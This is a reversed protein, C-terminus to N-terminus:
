RVRDELVEVQQAVLSGLVHDDEAGVVDVPHVRPLHEFLVDVRARRHGDRRDAHRDLLGVLEAHDLGRRVPARDRGEALLRGVGDAKGVRGVLNIGRHAVVHERGLCQDLDDRRVRVRAEAWSMPPLMM